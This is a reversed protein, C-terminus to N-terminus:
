RPPVVDIPLRAAAGDFSAADVQVLSIQLVYSGERAPAELRAAVEVAEGAPLDWPLRVPPATTSGGGDRPRWEPRLVVLLRDGASPWPVAPWDAAGLNTVQARINIAGGAAVSTPPAAIAVAGRAAALPALPTGLVTGGDGPRAGALGLAWPRAPPRTVHLLLFDPDDRRVREVGPTTDALAEWRALDSARVRAHPVLIWRVETLDVVPQLASPAPLRATAESVVPLWWPAYGTHGNVLPLFHYASMVMADSQALATSLSPGPIELLPGSASTGLWRYVEPVDRGTPLTTLPLAPLGLARPVTVAAVLGVGALAAPVRGGRAAAGILVGAGSAALAAVGVDALIVFRATARLGAFPTHALVGSPLPITLPGLSLSPGAAFAIGVAVLAVARWWAVGPRRRRILPVLLGLVALVVVLWGVGFLPDAPDVVRRQLLQDIAALAPAREAAAAAPAYRRYPLTFLALVLFAPAAGAVIRGAARRGDSALALGVEIAVLLGAMAAVYYSSFAALLTAGALRAPRGAALLILPLVYNPYQLVHLDAPVRLPGLAFAAAGVAAAAGGSGLRRLWAYMVVASLVYSAMAALNAALVPNGTTLFVPASLPLLGLLHESGALMGPAPHYINADFLHLPATTLAHVDWSLIWVILRADAGWLVNGAQAADPIAHAADRVWPWAFALLAAVSVLAAALIEPRRPPSPATM